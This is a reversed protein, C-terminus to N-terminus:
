SLRRCRRGSREPRGGANVEIRHGRPESDGSVAYDTAGVGVDVDRENGGGGNRGGDSTSAQGTQDERATAKEAPPSPPFLDGSGACRERNRLVRGLSSAAL